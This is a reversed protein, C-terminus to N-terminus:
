RVVWITYCDNKTNRDINEVTYRSVIEALYTDTDGGWINEYWEILEGTESDCVDIEWISKVDWITM